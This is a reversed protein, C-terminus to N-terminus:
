PTQCTTGACSVMYALRYYMALEILGAEPKGVLNNMEYPDALFDYLEREGTQWYTYKFRETRLTHYTIRAFLPGDELMLRRDTFATPDNALTQLPVGDAVRRPTVGTARTITPALDINAVLRGNTAGAPFGPGRILLPVRSAEEYPLSKGISVRFEGYLYGNDSTFVILTNDIQGTDRLTTVISEVQDDVSQLSESAMRNFTDSGNEQEPTLRAANAIAAPKGTMDAPNFDAHHEIVKGDKTHRYKSEPYPFAMFTSDPKNKGFHPSIPTYWVFFPQEPHAARERIVDNVHQGLVNTSYDADTLGYTRPTGNQMITYGWYSYTTPDVLGWWNDWGPPQAEAPSDTGYGNLYKGTLSTYYGADHLWVALTNTHDLKTYGGTPLGSSLVGHNHSYQGTLFTARSPCCEAYSVYSNAFSTGPAGILAKTKPMDELQAMTQDDTTIVVVNPRPKGTGNTPGPDAQGSAPSGSVLPVSAALLVLAAVVFVRRATRRVPAPPPVPSTRLCARDV